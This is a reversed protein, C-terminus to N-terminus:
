GSLMCLARNNEIFGMGGMDAALNYVVAAGSVAAECGAQGALGAAPEGCGPSTSVMGRTAQYGSGPKKQHGQRALDAVLHGGIFGGGGCVVVLKNMDTEMSNQSNSISLNNAGKAPAQM